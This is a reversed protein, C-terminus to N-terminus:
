CPIESVGLFFKAILKDYTVMYAKCFVVLFSAFIYYLQVPDERRAAYKQMKV